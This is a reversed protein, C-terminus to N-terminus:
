MVEIGSLPANYSLNQIFSRPVVETIRVPIGNEKQLQEMNKSAKQKKVCATLGAILIITLTLILLRRM